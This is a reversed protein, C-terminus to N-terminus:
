KSKEICTSPASLLGSAQKEVQHRQEISCKAILEGVCLRDRIFNIDLFPDKQTGKSSSNLSKIHRIEHPFSFQCLFSSHCKNNNHMKCCRLRPIRFNRMCILHFIKSERDHFPQFFSSSAIFLITSAYILDPPNFHVARLYFRAQATCEHWNWTGVRM